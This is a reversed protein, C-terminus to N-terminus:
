AALFPGSVQSELQHGRGSGSLLSSIQRGPEHMNFGRVAQPRSRSGAATAGAVSQFSFTSDACRM